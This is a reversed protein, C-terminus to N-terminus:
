LDGTVPRLILEECYATRRNSLVQMVAKAVDAAMMMKGGHAEVVSEPWIGTITAGPFVNLVHINKKRVEERLVNAYAELGAKSASYISSKAFVKKCVVSLINIISGEGGAIMAPLVKNICYVAGLLNTQIIAQIENWTDGTASRFSTIGANNVLGTIQRDGSRYFEELAADVSEPNAVDCVGTVLQAAFDALEDQLTKLKETTRSTAFVSYGNTILERTLERGIGNGAGTIWFYQKM